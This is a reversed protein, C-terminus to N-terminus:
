RSEFHHLIVSKLSDLLGTWYDLGTTWDLSNMCGEIPRMGPDPQFSPAVYVRLEKALQYCKTENMDSLLRYLKDVNSPVLEVAFLFSIM